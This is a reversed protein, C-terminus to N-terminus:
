LGPTPPAATVSPLINGEDDVAPFRDIVLRFLKERTQKDTPTNGLEGKVVLDLWGNSKIREARLNKRVADEGIVKILAHLCACLAEREAVEDYRGEAFGRAIGKIEKYDRPLFPDFRLVSNDLNESM